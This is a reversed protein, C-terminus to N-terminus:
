NLIKDLEEALIDYVVRIRRSTRLERHTVLWVPLRVPEIAALIRVVGGTAGAIADMMLGAGYGNRVMEWGTVSNESMVPFNDPTVALGLERLHGAFRDLQGFGIFSADVIDAPTNPLGNASVWEPSAYFSATAQGILKGILDPEEPQAHRIAIDAERRRLDSIANSAVIEIAIKPAESRIRKIINPLIHASVGDSASIAVLGEVAQARGSAALSMQRAAGGMVRVHELLELGTETLVLQNGIREFLVVGLQKELGAVQRSLTPQTQRLKRAAASLSGEEATVLFARAQNWDFDIIAWDM